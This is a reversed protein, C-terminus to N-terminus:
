NSVAEIDTKSVGLAELRDPIRTLKDKYETDKLYQALWELGYKRLLWRQFTIVWVAPPNYPDIKGMEDMGDLWDFEHNKMHWEAREVQELTAKSLFRLEQKPHWKGKAKMTEATSKNM